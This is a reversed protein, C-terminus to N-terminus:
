TLPRTAEELWRRETEDLLPSLTDRVRRHYADLWEREARSLMDADILRRDIPALTLTEFAYYPRTGAFESRERVVVLNEIRIGYEGEKYFGPENSLVMGPQLPVASRVHIGQPGEHVGLYAGVGHGTGHAYDVGDRWLPLRALADLNQGSVGKPFVAGALAIHGQLVQTFRRKQEETPEGIVVTRTVDTTGDLYQGGSDLLFLTNIELVKDSDETARYHVIAGHEGSGAITDFSPERFHEQQQRFSLLRREVELETVPRLPAEADLWALLKALAAGDRIHAQRMGEIETANKCAKPLLCPDDRAVIEAGAEMLQRHFWAASRMPDYQVKAGSLGHLAERLAEVPRIRVEAGVHARVADSLKAADIFWDVAGDKHLLAFSLALPTHAVDGGRINLLWAISDPASLVAADAGNAEVAKGVRARKSASTEGAYREGYVEVPACPVPPRDRWVADVCNAEVPVLEVGSGELQRHMAEVASRSHLWPDYALRAGAKLRAAAWEAQGMGALEQQEYHAADVQRRAQLTYRGDVFVAAAKAEEPGACKDPDLASEDLVVAAGASGTFGTLWAMRRASPPPYEGQYEDTVPVVFGQVGAQRMAGRLADLRRAYEAKDTKREKGM